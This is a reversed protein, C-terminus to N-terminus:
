CGVLCHNLISSLGLVCDETESLFRWALAFSLLNFRMIENEVCNLSRYSIYSELERERADGLCASFGGATLGSAL